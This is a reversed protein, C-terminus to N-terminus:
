EPAKEDQNEKGENDDPIPELEKQIMEFDDIIYDDEGM